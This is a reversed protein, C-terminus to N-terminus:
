DYTPKGFFKVVKELDLHFVVFFLGVLSRLKWVPQNFGFKFVSTLYDKRAGAYDRMSLKKRGSRSYRMPFNHHHFKYIMKETMKSFKPNETHKRFFNLSFQYLGEAMSLTHILSVESGHHRWKGLPKPIFIFNGKLSLELLTPLDVLPLNYSQQFGGIEDLAQRKIVVTLAPIINGLILISSLDISTQSNTQLYPKNSNPDLSLKKTLDINSRYGQGFCVVSDPNEEMIPIQFELKEPLWVDDGDLIAIYKGKSKELAFNYSEKMRFVGINKQTYVQVRKDKEAFARAVAFTNDTSGDDVIIMEWNEYTQAIVSNICDSIYNEHNYTLTLISVLPYQQNM